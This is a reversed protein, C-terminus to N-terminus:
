FFYSNSSIAEKLENLCNIKIKFNKGPYTNNLARVHSINHIDSGVYDILGRKLLKDSIMRIDSGYYDTM